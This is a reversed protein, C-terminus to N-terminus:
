LLNTSYRFHHKERLIQIALLPLECLDDAATKEILNYITNVAASLAEPPDVNPILILGLYLAAFVDGAGKASVTLYPTQIQWAADPTVLVTALNESAPISTAVVNTPGDKMLKRAAAAASLPDTVRMGSLIELEFHNPFILDALPMARRIYFEILSESVYLGEAKDGLIPDCALLASSNAKRVRRWGKLVVEGIDTSGLYGTLVADCRALIGRKNLGNLVASIDTADLKSGHWEGHGPHHSLLVTHVPWVEHDLRQLPYVAASNGVHGCTVHSHITLIAM